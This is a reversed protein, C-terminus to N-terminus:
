QEKTYIPKLIIGYESFDIDEENLVDLVKEAAELNDHIVIIRYDSGTYGWGQKEAPSFEVVQFYWGIRKNM